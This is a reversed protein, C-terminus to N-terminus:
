ILVLYASRAAALRAGLVRPTSARVTREAADDALQAAHERMALLRDYLAVHWCQARGAKGNKCSCGRSNVTYVQGPNNLSAILLDGAHWCLRAGLLVNMRVRDLQRAGAFDGHQAAIQAQEQADDAIAAPAPIALESAPQSGYKADYKAVWMAVLEDTWEVGCRGLQQIVADAKATADFMRWRAARAEGKLALFADLDIRTHRIIDQTEHDYSEIIAEAQRRINSM